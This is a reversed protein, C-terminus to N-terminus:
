LALGHDNELVAFLTAALKERVERSDAETLLVVLWRADRTPWERVYSELDDAARKQELFLVAPHKRGDHVSPTPNWARRGDMVAVAQILDSAFWLGDEPPTIIGRSVLRDLEALDIRYDGGVRLAEAAQETSLPYAAPRKLRAWWGAAALAARATVEFDQPNQVPIPRM